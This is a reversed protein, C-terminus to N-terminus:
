LLQMTICFVADRGERGNPRSVAALLGRWRGTPFSSGVVRGAMRHLDVCLSNLAPFAEWNSVCGTGERRPRSTERKQIAQPTRHRPSPRRPNSHATSQEKHPQIPELSSCHQLNNHASHEARDATIQTSHLLAPSGSAIQHAIRNSQFM